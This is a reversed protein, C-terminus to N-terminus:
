KSQSLVRVSVFYQIFTTLFVPNGGTKWMLIDKTLFLKYPYHELIWSYELNRERKKLFFRWSQILFLILLLVKNKVSNYCHQYQLHFIIIGINFSNKLLDSIKNHFSAILTKIKFWLVFLDFRMDQFFKWISVLEWM